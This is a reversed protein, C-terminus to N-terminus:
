CTSYPPNVDSIFEGAIVICGSGGTRMKRPKAPKGNRILYRNTSQEPEFFFIDVRFFAIDVPRPSSRAYAIKGGIGPVCGIIGDGLGTRRGVPIFKAGTRVGFAELLEIM